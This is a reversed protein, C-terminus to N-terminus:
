PSGGVKHSAALKVAVPDDFTVRRLYGDVNHVEGSAKSLIAWAIDLTQDLDLQQDLTQEFWERVAPLNTIGYAEARKHAERL